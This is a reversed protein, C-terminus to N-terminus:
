TPTGTLSIGMNLLHLEQIAQKTVKQIFTTVEKRKSNNYENPYKSSPKYHNIVSKLIPKPMAQNSCKVQLQKQLQRLCKLLMKHMKM